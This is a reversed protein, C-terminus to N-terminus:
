FARFPMGFGDIFVAVAFAALVVFILLVELPRSTLQRACAFLLLVFIAAVLGARDILLYFGIVGALILLLPTL